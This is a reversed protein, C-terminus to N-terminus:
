FCHSSPARCNGCNCFWHTYEDGPESLFLPYLESIPEMHILRDQVGSSYLLGFFHHRSAQNDVLGAAGPPCECCDIASRLALCFYTPGKVPSSSVQVTTTTAGQISVGIFQNCSLDNTGQKRGNESLYLQKNETSALLSHWKSYSFSWFIM